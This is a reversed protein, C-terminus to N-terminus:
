DSITAPKIDLVKLQLSINGEWENEDITYVIDVPQKGALLSHKEALNFGIGTMTIENKKVVLLLHKEKVIKSWGTDIINRTIFVPRMNDPGFPEM